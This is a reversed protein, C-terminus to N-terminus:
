NGLARYMKQYAKKFDPDSKARKDALASMRDKFGSKDKGGVIELWAALNAQLKGHVEGIGSLNVQLSAYLEPDESLVSDAFMLLLKCTTGGISEFEEFDGLELLTDAAVLAILHPLGLVVAMTKDHEEPSMMRVKGGRNKVFAGVKEALSNEVDNTPTLIFNHGAFDKAGPGFMPHVGLVKKTKLQRHMAEVPRVKVSTVELVAQGPAIYRAYSEVVTEFADMPVSIIILDAGTVDAPSASTDVGLRPRLDRLRNEDRGLLLIDNGEGALFRAFWQGMKGSGGIIAIKM